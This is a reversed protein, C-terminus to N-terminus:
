ARRARVVGRLGALSFMVLSFWGEISGGGGGSSSAAAAPSVTLTAKASTVTGFESTVAVTYDGADASRVSTLGLNSATAGSLASGKFYWQYVLPTSGTATVSFQAGSGAAVTQSQPQATIVPPGALVGKRIAHNATDAVYINGTRDVAIGTCYNFRAASGIGDACGQYGELGGLVSVTGAPTIRYVTANWPDTVYLNGDGDLALGGTNYPARLNITVPLTTVVGDPTIKRIKSNGSDAVFVNGTEDVALGGPYDFRANTGTGDAYHDGAGAINMGALTTVTGAPTVKNITSGWTYYVNGARDLAVASGDTYGSGLTSVIGEPTIKQLLTNTAVYVNGTQDVALSTPQSFLLPARAGGPSAPPATLTTVAGAPSIKRITSNAQDAVYLMGAGDIALGLPEHFRATTGPGDAQGFGSATSAITTVVGAPTIKRISHNGTDALFINDAGDITLGSPNYFRAVTGTGDDSGVQEAVGAWTTVAGDPTIKRVTQNRADAVFLNGASDVAVDSPASFRAASGLGDASGTLGASGAVTTVTGDPTIKRITAWDAVFLNGASDVRVGSPATFRAAPGTGDMEGTQGPSGAFTSVVGAPTIKRITHNYWDAVYVNGGRDVALGAPYFFRADTGTGDRSDGTVTSVYVFHTYPAGAFPTAVGGPTIKYITDGYTDSVYLTGTGDVTVGTLTAPRWATGTGDVLTLTTVVGAPTIKRIAYNKQDVVYLNGAGDVTVSRPTNFRAATGTGDTFDPGGLPGALHSFSYKQGDGQARASAAALGLIGLCIWRFKRLAVLPPLKMPHIPEAFRGLPPKNAPCRSLAAAGMRSHCGAYAFGSSLGFLAATEPLAAVEGPRVFVNGAVEQGVPGSPHFGAGVLHM